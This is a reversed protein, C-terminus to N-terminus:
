EGTWISSNRATMAGEDTHCPNRNTIDGRSPDGVSISRHFWSVCIARQVRPNTRKSQSHQVRKDFRIAILEGPCCRESKMKTLKRSFVFILKACLPAGSAARVMEMWENCENSKVSDRRRKKWKTWECMADQYVRMRNTQMRNITQRYILESFIFFWLASAAAIQYFGFFLHMAPAHAWIVIVINESEVSATVCEWRGCANFRKQWLNIPTITYIRFRFAKSSILSTWMWHLGFASHCKRIFSGAFIISLLKKRNMTISAHQTSSSACLIFMELLLVFHTLSIICFCTADIDCQVLAYCVIVWERPVCVRVRVSRLQFNEEKKNENLLNTYEGTLAPVLSPTICIQGADYRGIGTLTIVLQCLTNHVSHRFIRSGEIM